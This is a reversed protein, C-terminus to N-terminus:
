WQWSRKLTVKAKDIVDSGADYPVSASATWTAGDEFKSDVYDVAVEGSDGNFKASVDRGADFNHDYGIEYKADHSDPNYNIEASLSDGGGLKSMLKVRATKAKVLWSPQVNVTNDGLDVDRVASVEIDGDAAEVGVATGEIKTNASLKVNTARGAFDHTLEYSVSVDDDKSASVLDGSVAVENLFDKNANRDYNATLKASLDGLKLAQGFTAKINDFATGKRLDGTSLEVTNALSTLAVISVAAM